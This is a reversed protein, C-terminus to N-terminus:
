NIFRFCARQGRDGVTASSLCVMRYDKAPRRSLFGYIYGNSCQTALPYVEQEGTKTEFVIAGEACNVDIFPAMDALWGLLFVQWEPNVAWVAGDFTVGAPFQNTHKFDFGLVNVTFNFPPLLPPAATKAPEPTVAPLDPDAGAAPVACTLALAAGFLGTLLRTSTKTM